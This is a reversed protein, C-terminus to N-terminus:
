HTVGERFEVIEPCGMGDVPIDDFCGRSPITSRTERCSLCIKPVGRGEGWENFEYWTSNLTNLM